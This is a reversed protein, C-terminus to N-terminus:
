LGCYMRHLRCVSALFYRYRSRSYPRSVIFFPSLLKAATLMEVINQLLTILM